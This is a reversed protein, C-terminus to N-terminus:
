LQPVFVETFEAHKVVSHIIIIIIIHKGFPRSLVLTVLIKFFVAVSKFQRFM